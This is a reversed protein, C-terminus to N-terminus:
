WPGAVDPDLLDGHGLRPRALQQDLHRAVADAAAVEVGIDTRRLAAGRHVQGADHEAVLEGAGDAREAVPDVVDSDAGRDRDRRDLPAAGAVCAVVGPRLHAALDADVAAVPQRQM